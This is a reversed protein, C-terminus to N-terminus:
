HRIESKKKPNSATAVFLCFPAGPYVEFCLANQDNSKEGGLSVYQTRRDFYQPKYFYKEDLIERMRKLASNKISKIMVPMM